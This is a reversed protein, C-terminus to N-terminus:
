KILPFNSRRFLLFYCQKLNTIPIKFLRYAYFNPLTTLIYFERPKPIDCIHIYM